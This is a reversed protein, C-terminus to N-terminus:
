YTFWMETNRRFMTPAHERYPQALLARGDDQRSAHSGPCHIDERMVTDLDNETNLPIIRLPNDAAVEVTGQIRRTLYAVFVSKVITPVVLSYITAVSILVSSMARFASAM